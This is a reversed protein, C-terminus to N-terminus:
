GAPGGGGSLGSRAIGLAQSLDPTLVVYPIGYQTFKEILNVAVDDYHTLIVHNSVKDPVTRPARAKNQEELWPAYFFQIFTFPLMVLLFVIGNLLFLSPFFSEL